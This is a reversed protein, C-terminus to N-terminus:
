VFMNRLYWHIEALGNRFQSFNVSDGVVENIGDTTNNKVVKAVMKYNKEVGKRLSLLVFFWEFWSAAVAMIAMAAAAALFCSKKWHQKQTILFLIKNRSELDKSFMRNYLILFFNHFHQQSPNFNATFPLLTRNIARTISKVYVPSPPEQKKM